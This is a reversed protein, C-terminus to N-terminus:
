YRLKAGPELLRSEEDRLENRAADLQWKLRALTEPKWGAASGRAFRAELTDINAMLRELYSV